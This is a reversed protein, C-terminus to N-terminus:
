AHFFAKLRKNKQILFVDLLFVVLLSLAVLPFVVAFLLLIVLLARNHRISNAKPAGMHHQPKRRRWLFFGSVIIGVLGICILLGFLQNLLGFELGKHITIGTAMWKGVLGYDDYRYDALVAGTYQDVYMTAEDRAQDPFASLTFSGTESRPFYVTYSPHLERHLGTTVVDDISVQEYGQENGSLPVPLKQAAWASEAVDETLSQPADGVWISPPYGHGTSTAIHQVGNGWFGTWLMGTLVFFLLGISLWAAPVAHLDRVLVRKGKRVRPLWVGYLNPKSRRPWWLYLGSAILIITWSATLEVVRDGFTGLMLESHLEILREMVRNQDMLVGLSEGTYPNMFVTGSAGDDFSAGIAVSRTAEESPSYSTVTAINEHATLANAILESPPYTVGDQNPRVDYYESYISAEITGKFLYIGGTIALLLLIPAIILGAYFHWRWVTGYRKLSRPPDTKM